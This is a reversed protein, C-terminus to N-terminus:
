GWSVGYGMNIVAPLKALDVQDALEPQTLQYHQQQVKDLQKRNKASTITLLTLPRGGHTKGTHEITVRDSEAALKELYRVVQAHTLHHQGVEFGFFEAPTTIKVDYKVNEPWCSTPQKAPGQGVALPPSIFLTLWFAVLVSVSFSTSPHKM